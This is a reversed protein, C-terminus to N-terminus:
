FCSPVWQRLYSDSCTAWTAFANAKVSNVEALTDDNCVHQGSSLGYPSGCGGGPAMFYDSPYSFVTPTRNSRQGSRWSCYAQLSPDSASRGHNSANTVSVLAGASTTYSAVSIASHQGFSWCCNAYRITAVHQYTESSMAVVAETHLVSSGTSTAVPAAASALEAGYRGANILARALEPDSLARGTLADSVKAALGFDLARQGADLPPEGGPRNQWDFALDHGGGETIFPEGNASLFRVDVESGGTEDQLALPRAAVRRAEFSITGTDARFTGALVDPGEHFVLGRSPDDSRTADSGAGSVGGCGALLLTFLVLVVVGWSSRQAYSNAM